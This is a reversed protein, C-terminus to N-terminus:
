ARRRRAIAALGFLLSLSAPEPVIGYIRLERGVRFDTWNGNGNPNRGPSAFYLDYIYLSIGTIQAGSFDAPQGDAWLAESLSGGSTGVGSVGTHRWVQDNANGNSLTNVFTAFDPDSGTRVMYENGLSAGVTLNVNEFLQPGTNFGTGPGMGIAVRDLHSFVANMGWLFSTRDLNWAALLVEGSPPTAVATGM